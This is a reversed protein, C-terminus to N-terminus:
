VGVAVKKPTFRVPMHKIGGIFNSRLREVEGVLEMDPARRLLESFFVRLELRALNAGLCFHEGKGFAIHENPQRLVDFRYPDVFHDEDRNASPYWMVVRDGERVQQGRLEVDRTATRYFNLVPSSWRLIEEVAANTRGDIDAVVKAREDPHEILALMGMSTTNRTTENGAVVLLLCFILLEDLELKEGDIEAQMLVGLLDTDDPSLGRASRQAVQGAWYGFMQMSADMMVEQRTRGKAYEPDEPGILANGLHFMQDWDERPVGMMECIVALPLKAAVDTVFDCEGREIIGDAIESAITRVHPEMSQVMSRKFGVNILNRLKTHYPPDSMLLMKGRPDSDLGGFGMGGGAEDMEGAMLDDGIVVGKGSIFTEPDASIRVIDDYKSIVWFREQGPREYWYVPAQKRLVEFAQHPFGETFQELEFLDVDDPKAITGHM